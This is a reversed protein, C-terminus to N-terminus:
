IKKKKVRKQQEYPQFPFKVTIGEIVVEVNETLEKIKTGSSSFNEEM